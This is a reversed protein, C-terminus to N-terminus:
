AALLNYLLNQIIRRGDNFEGLVDLHECSLCVEATEADDWTRQKM